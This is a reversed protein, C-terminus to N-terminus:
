LMTAYKTYFVRIIPSDTTKRLIYLSRKCKCSVKIGATILQNNKAKNIVNQM